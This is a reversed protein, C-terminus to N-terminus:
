PRFSSVFAGGEGPAGPIFAVYRLDKVDKANVSLQSDGWRVNLNLQADMTGIDRGQHQVRGNTVTLREGGYQLAATPGSGRAAQERLLSVVQLNLQVHAMTDHHRTEQPRHLTGSLGPSGGVQGLLTAVSVPRAPEFTSRGREAALRADATLGAGSSAAITAGARAGPAPPNVTVPTVSPLTKM